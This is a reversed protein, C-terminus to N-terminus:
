LHYQDRYKILADDIVVDFSHRDLSLSLGQNGDWPIHECSVSSSSIDSPTACLSTNLCDAHDVVVLHLNHYLSQWLPVSELAYCQTGLVLLRLQRASQDFLKMMALLYKGYAYHYRSRQVKESGLASARSWFEDALASGTKSGVSPLFPVQLGCLSRVCEMHLLPRTAPVLSTGPLLIGRLVQLLYQCANRGGTLHSTRRDEKAYDPMWCTHLDEVIYWGGHRVVPGLAEWSRIIGLAQHSGDDVLIHVGGDAQLRQRVAELFKYDGQDGVLVQVRGWKGRSANVCAGDIEAAYLTKHKLMKGWVKLSRGPGDLGCGVGIELMRVSCTESFAQFPRLARDYFTHYGHLVKDTGFAWAVQCFENNALKPHLENPPYPDPHARACRPQTTASADLLPLHTSSLAGSARPPGQEPAPALVPMLLLCIVALPLRLNGWHPDRIHVSM